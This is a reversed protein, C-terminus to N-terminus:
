MNDEEEFKNATSAEPRQQKVCVYVFLVLRAVLECIPTTLICSVSVTVIMLLDPLTMVLTLLNGARPCAFRQGTDNDPGRGWGM